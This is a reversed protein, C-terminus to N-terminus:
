FFIVPFLIFVLLMEFGHKREYRESWWPVDAIDLATQFPFIYEVMWEGEFFLEEGRFTFKM